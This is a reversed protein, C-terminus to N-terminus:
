TTTKRIAECLAGVSASWPSRLLSTFARVNMLDGTSVLFGALVGHAHDLFAVDRHGCRPCWFLLRAEPIGDVFGIRHLRMALVLADPIRAALIQRRAEGEKSRADPANPVHLELWEHTFPSRPRPTSWAEISQRDMGVLPTRGPPWSMAM